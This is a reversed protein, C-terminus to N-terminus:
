QSGNRLSRDRRGLELALAIRQQPTLARIEVLSREFAEEASRSPRMGLTPLLRQIEALDLPAESETEAQNAPPGADQDPSRGGEERENESRRPEDLRASKPNTM